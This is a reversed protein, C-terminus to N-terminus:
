SIRVRGFRESTVPNNLEIEKEIAAINSNVGVALRGNTSADCFTGDMTIFTRHYISEEKDEWRHVGM